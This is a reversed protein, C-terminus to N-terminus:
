SDSSPDAETFDETVVVPMTDDLESNLRSDGEVPQSAPRPVTPMNYAENPPVSSVLPYRPNRHRDFQAQPSTRPLPLRHHRQREKLPVLNEKNDARTFRQPRPVGVLHQNFPPSFINDPNNPNHASSINSINSINGTINAANTSRPMRTYRVNYDDLPTSIPLLRRRKILPPM